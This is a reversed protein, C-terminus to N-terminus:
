FLIRGIRGMIHDVFSNTVKVAICLYFRGLAEQKLFTVFYFHRTGSVLLSLPQTFAGVTNLIHYRPKIFAPSKAVATVIIFINCWSTCDIDDFSDANSFWLCDVSGDSLWISAVGSSLRSFPGDTKPDVTETFVRNVRDCPKEQHQQPRIESRPRHRHLSWQNQFRCEEDCGWLEQLEDSVVM